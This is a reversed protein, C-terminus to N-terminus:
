FDAALEKQPQVLRKLSFNTIKVNQKTALAIEAVPALINQESHAGKKKNGRVKKIM